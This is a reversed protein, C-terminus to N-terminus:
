ENTSLFNKPARNKRGAFTASDFTTGILFSFEKRKFVMDNAQYKLGQYSVGVRWVSRSFPVDLSLTGNLGRKNHLSSFHVADELNGLEFMEYYSAGSPPAFMCGIVPTKLDMRLRLTRKRLPIDYIVAGTLNLNTAIDMNVPNNVNRGIWKFGFDVDWLGGALLQLGKQLRFHYSMGWGYNIGFYIMSNTSAPNETIGAELNFKSQMSINVNNPSFFRRNEREFKLGNGSYTMPSLYPDLFSFTSIGYNCTTTTLLYKQEESNQASLMSSFLIILSLIFYHKM